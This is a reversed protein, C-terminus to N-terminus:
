IPQVTVGATIQDGVGMATVLYARIEQGDNVHLKPIVVADRGGVGGVGFNAYWLTALNQGTLSSSLYFALAEQAAANGDYYLLVQYAGARLVQTSAIQAPGVAGSLTASAAVCDGECHEHLLVVPTATEILVFGPVSTELDLTRHLSDYRKQIRSTV